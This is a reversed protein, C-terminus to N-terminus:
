WVRVKWRGSGAGSNRPVAAQRSITWFAVSTVLALITTRACPGRPQSCYIQVRYPSQIHHVPAEWTSLIRRGICSAPDIGPDPLNGPTAFPLGSWYEQRSFEMSPPTQCAVTWPTVILQVHSLMYVCMYHGIEKIM